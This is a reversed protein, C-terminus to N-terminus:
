SNHTIPELGLNDIIMRLYDIAVTDQMTVDIVEDALWIVDLGQPHVVYGQWNFGMLLFMYETLLWRDTDNVLNFLYSPIDGLKRLEGHNKRFAAFFDQELETGGWNVIWLLVETDPLLKCLARALVLEAAADTPTTFAVTSGTEPGFVVGDAADLPPRHPVNNRALWNLTTQIDVAQM